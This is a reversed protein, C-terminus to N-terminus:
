LTLNNHSPHSKALEAHCKRTMGLRMRSNASSSAEQPHNKNKNATSVVRDISRHISKSTAGPLLEGFTSQV